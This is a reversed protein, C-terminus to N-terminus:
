RYAKYKTTRGSGLKEIKGVKVLKSLEAEITTISIDILKDCIERKSVPLLIDAIFAEIRQKKTIKKDKLNM